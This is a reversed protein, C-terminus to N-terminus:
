PWRGRPPTSRRLPLLGLAVIIGLASYFPWGRVGKIALGALLLGAIPITLQNLHSMVLTRLRRRVVTVTDTPMGLDQRVALSVRAVLHPPFEDPLKIKHGSAQRNALFTPSVVSHPQYDELAVAITRGKGWELFVQMGPSTGLVPFLAPHLRVVRRDANDDGPHGHVVRVPQAPAALLFRLLMELAGDIIRAAFIAIGLMIIPVDQFSGQLPGPKARNALSRLSHRRRRPIQSLQVEDDVALEFLARTLMGARLRNESGARRTVIRIPACVHSSCLLLTPKRGFRRYGMAAAIKESIHIENGAPLDDALAGSVKLLRANDVVLAGEPDKEPYVKQLAAWPVNSLGICGATLTRPKGDRDYYDSARHIWLPFRYGAVDLHGIVPLRLRDSLMDPPLAAFPLPNAVDFRVLPAPGIIFDAM